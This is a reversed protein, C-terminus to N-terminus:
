GRLISRFLMFAVLPAENWFLLADYCTSDLSTVDAALDFSSSLAITDFREVRWGCDFAFLPGREAPVGSWFAM